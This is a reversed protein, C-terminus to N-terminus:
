RSSQVAAGLGLVGRTWQVLAANGVTAAIHSPLPRLRWHVTWSTSSGPPLAVMPGEEEVELFKDATAPAETYLQIEGEDPGLQDPSTDAFSKIFVLGSEVHAIWGEAGDRAVIYKAPELPASQQNLWTVGALTTVPLQAMGLVNTKANIATGEPFYTLGAPHVRSIEWPAWSAVVSSRNTLTYEINLTQDAADAWVRKSAQLGWTRNVSGIFTVVNNQLSPTFPASEVEPPPPWGWRAQPSPRFWSSAALVNVGRYAFTQISAGISTDIEAVTDGMTFRWINGDQEPVVLTTATSGSSWTADSGSAPGHESGGFDGGGSPLTSGNDTTADSGPAQTGNSNAVADIRTRNNRDDQPRRSISCSAAAITASFVALGLLLTDYSFM